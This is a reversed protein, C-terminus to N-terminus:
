RRLKNESVRRGEPDLLFVRVARIVFPHGWIRAVFERTSGSGIRAVSVRRGSGASVAPVWIWQSHPTQWGFRTYEVEVGLGYPRSAPAGEGDPLIPEGVVDPLPGMELGRGKLSELWVDAPGSGDNRITAHVQWTEKGMAEAGRSLAVHTVSLAPNGDQALAGPVLPQIAPLSARIDGQEVMPRGVRVGLERRGLAEKWPLHEPLRPSHRYDFAVELGMKDPSRSTVIDMRFCYDPPILLFGREGRCLQKVLEAYVASKKNYQWVTKVYKQGLATALAPLEAPSTVAKIGLVSKTLTLAPGLLDGGSAGWVCEIGVTLPTLAKQGPDLDLFRGGRTQETAYGGCTKEIHISHRGAGTVRFSNRLSPEPVFIVCVYQRGKDFLNSRDGEGFRRPCLEIRFRDKLRVLTLRAARSFVVSKNPDAAAGGGSSGEDGHDEGNCGAGLGVALILWAAVATAGLCGCGARGAQRGTVTAGVRPFTGSWGTLAFPSMTQM